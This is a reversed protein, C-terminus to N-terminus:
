ENKWYVDKGYVNKRFSTRLIVCSSKNQFTKTPLESETVNLFLSSRTFRLPKLPSWQLPILCKWKRARCIFALCTSVPHVTVMIARCNKGAGPCWWDFHLQCGWASRIVMTWLWVVAHLASNEVAGKVLLLSLLHGKTHFTQGGM